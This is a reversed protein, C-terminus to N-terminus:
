ARKRDAGKNQENYSGRKEVADGEELARKLILIIQRLSLLNVVFVAVLISNAFWAIQRVFFYLFVFVFTMTLVMSMRYVLNYLIGTHYELFQVKSEVLDETAGKNPM